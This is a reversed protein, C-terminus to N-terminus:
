WGIGLVGSPLVVALLNHFIFYSLGATIPAVLIHIRWKHRNYLFFMTFLLLTMSVLYGLYGLILTYGCMALGLGVPKSLQKWGFSAQEMDTAPLKAMAQVFVVASLIFLVVSTLGGMFGPGPAQLKGIGLKLSSAFILGSFVMLLLSSVQNIRQM